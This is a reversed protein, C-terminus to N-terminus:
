DTKPQASAEVRLQAATIVDVADLFAHDPVAQVGSLWSRLTGIDVKLRLSLNVEGGALAAAQELTKRYTERQPMQSCLIGAWASM